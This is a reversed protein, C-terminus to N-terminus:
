ERSGFVKFLAMALSFVLVLYFIMQARPVLYSALAVNGIIAYVVTAAPSKIKLTVVVLSVLFLLPLFWEGFSYDYMMRSGATVSGNVLEEYAPTYNIPFSIPM